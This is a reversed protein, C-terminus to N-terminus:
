ELDNLELWRFEKEDIQSKLQGLQESKAFLEEHNLNGTNLEDELNAKRSELNEIDKELQELERKERFSLKKPKEKETSTNKQGKKGSQKKVTM